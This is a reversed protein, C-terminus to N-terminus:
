VGRSGSAPMATIEEVRRMLATYRGELAVAIARIVTDFPRQYRSRFEDDVALSRHFSREHARGFSDNLSTWRIAIDGEPDLGLREVIKRIQTKHSLRPKLGDIARQIAAHDFDLGRLLKRAEDLKDANAQKDPNKAEMPVALVHRLTSDLERLAHAALPRSVKIRFAGAFLRCSDVYRDAIAEGLLRDLLSATDQQEKSLDFTNVPEDM